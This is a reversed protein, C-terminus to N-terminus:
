RLSDSQKVAKVVLVMWVKYETCYPKHSFWGMEAGTLGRVPLVLLAKVFRSKM